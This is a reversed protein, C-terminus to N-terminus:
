IMGSIPVVEQFHYYYAVCATPVGVLGGFFLISIPHRRLEWLQQWLTRSKETALLLPM